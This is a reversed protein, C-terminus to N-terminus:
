ANINAAAIGSDLFLCGSNATFTFVATTTSTRNVLVTGYPLGYTAPTIASNGAGLQYTMTDAFANRGVFLVLAMLFVKFVRGNMAKVESEKSSQRSNPRVSM